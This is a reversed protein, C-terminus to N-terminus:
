KNKLKFIHKFNGYREYWIGVEEEVYSIIDLSTFGPELKKFKKLEKDTEALSGILYNSGIIKKGSSLTKFNGKKM